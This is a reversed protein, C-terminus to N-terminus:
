PNLWDLNSRDAHLTHWGQPDWLDAIMSFYEQYMHRIRYISWKRHAREYIYARDLNAAQRVAYVYQDLTRCRFGTRGHEVTEPFAGWDSTIVPTGCMQAEVNVGGFPELYVTPVIVAAAEGMLRARTAVDVHGVFRMRDCRYEGDSTRLIGSTDVNRTFVGGQGAVVLEMGAANAVACATDIGKRSILRGLFFLYPRAARQATYPFDAPDFYNPIVVHYNDGNPDDGGQHGYCKAQHAYSEYCRFRAFTGGYGIGYEVVACNDGAAAAIPQQCTGGIIGIFDRPQKRENIAAAIRQNHMVWIPEVPSWKLHSPQQTRYDYPGLLADIEAQSIVQVHEDCEVESGEAGYHIVTHGLSKMMKCFNLVKQTYACACNRKHTALHPLAPIHFRYPM